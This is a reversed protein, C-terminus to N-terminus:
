KVTVAIMVKLRTLTICHLNTAIGYNFFEPFTNLVAKEKCKWLVNTAVM